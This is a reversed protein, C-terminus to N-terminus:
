VRGVCFFSLIKYQACVIMMNRIFSTYLAFILSRNFDFLVYYYIVLASKIQM